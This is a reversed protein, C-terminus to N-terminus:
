SGTLASSRPMRFAGVGVGVLGTGGQRSDLTSPVSSRFVVMLVSKGNGVELTGLHCRECNEQDKTVHQTPGGQGSGSCKGPKTGVDWLEGTVFWM